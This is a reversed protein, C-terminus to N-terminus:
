SKLPEVTVDALEDLKIGVVAANGLAALMPLKGDDAEVTTLRIRKYSKKKLDFLCYIVLLRASQGDGGTGFSCLM